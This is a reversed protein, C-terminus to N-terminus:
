KKLIKEEIKEYQKYVLIKKIPSKIDIQLLSNQIIDTIKDIKLNIFDKMNTIDMLILEKKYEEMDKFSTLSLKGQSYLCDFIVGDELIFVVPNELFFENFDEGYFKEEFPFDYYDKYM